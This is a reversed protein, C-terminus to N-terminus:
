PAQIWARAAAQEAAPFVRVEGPMLFRFLNVVRAIWAVDTVAAVREWRTWYGVGIRFDEWAAGADMGTFEGTLEYYCRLKSQRKALEQLRPELVGEYDQRTLRGSAAVALVSDPFGELIRIM